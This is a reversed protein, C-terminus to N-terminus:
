PVHSWKTAQFAHRTTEQNTLVTDICFAKITLHENNMSSCKQMGNVLKLAVGHHCVLICHRWGKNCTILNVDSLWAHVINSM